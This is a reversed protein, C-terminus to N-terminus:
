TVAKVPISAAKARRIMDATGTGGPFAIVLKPRYKDLMAQNRLPGGAPGHRRWDPYCTDLPVRRERAWQRAWLDAGFAGGQVIYGIPHQANITDLTEFVHQRNHYNRGGTVLVTIGRTM